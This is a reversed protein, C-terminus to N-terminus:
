LDYYADGSKAEAKSRKFIVWNRIEELLRYFFYDLVVMISFLQLEYLKIVSFFRQRAHIWYEILSCGILGGQLLFWSNQVCIAWDNGCGSSEVILSNRIM